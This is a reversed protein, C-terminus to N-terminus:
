TPPLGACGVVLDLCTVSIHLDIALAVRGPRCIVVLVGSCDLYVMWPFTSFLEVGGLVQTQVDMYGKAPIYVYIFHSLLWVVGQGEEVFVDTTPLCVDFGL